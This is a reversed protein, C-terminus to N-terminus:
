PGPPPETEVFRLMDPAPHPLPRTADARIGDFVLALYRRWLGPETTLLPAATQHVGGLLLVVDRGTIDPRIAHRRRARDTLTEAVECLRDIGARVGPDRLSPRGVVECFARDRALVEVGTTMFELLAAAPDEADSLRTGMAVLDDIMQGTIAALLDEKTAFHRFVTGKAIGARQAIEAISVETGHEAFADAAADLLLRRNRVADARAPRTSPSNTM